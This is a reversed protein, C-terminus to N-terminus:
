EERNMVERYTQVDMQCEMAELIEAGNAIANRYTAWDHVTLMERLRAIEAEVLAPLGLSHKCQGYKLHAPCNCDGDKVIYSRLTDDNRTVLICDSLITCHYDATIADARNQINALTRATNIDM